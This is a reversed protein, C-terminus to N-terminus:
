AEQRAYGVGFIWGEQRAHRRAGPDLAFIHHPCHLNRLAAASIIADMDDHDPLKEALSTAPEAGFFSLASNLAALPDDRKVRDSIGAMSFYLSPFIEVVALRCERGGPEAPMIPWISAFGKLRHLLRMGALSGTGVGAPGVCNFTPSPSRGNVKQAMIETMRRRSSFLEGRGGRGDRRKPANYYRRLEPHGWVGGGYLHPEEMSAKEVAQWLDEPIKPSATCSPFYGSTESAPHAFAFDIGALVSRGKERLDLLLELIEVRSWGQRSPPSVIGPCAHGPEALAVQIGRHYQGSAGSWDIGLFTDFGLAPM